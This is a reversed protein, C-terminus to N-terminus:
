VVGLNVVDSYQASGVIVPIQFKNAFLTLSKDREVVVLQTLVDDLHQLVYAVYLRDVTYVICADDCGGSVHAVTVENILARLNTRAAADAVVAKYVRAGNNARLYLHTVEYLYSCTGYQTSASLYLFFGENARTYGDCSTDSNAFARTYAGARHHYRRYFCAFSYKSVGRLFYSASALM